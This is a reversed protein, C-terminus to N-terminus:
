RQADVPRRDLATRIGDPTRLLEELSTTTDSLMDTRTPNWDLATRTASSTTRSSAGMVVSTVYGGWLGAAQSVSVSATEVSMTRAIREALWRSPVEGATAHYVAGPTGREVARTFLDALDEVHVVSYTNLGPGVYWATGREVVSRVIHTAQSSLGGGWISPPRVVMSRVGTASANHVLRETEFRTRMMAPVEFADDEAFCNDNWFGATERSLVGTGSTFVFAKETGRLPELIASVVRREESRDHGRELVRASFVTCDAATVEELVPGLHAFSGLFTAAGTVALTAAGVENRVMARVHHGRGLLATTIHSGVYGTAGIVVVRM